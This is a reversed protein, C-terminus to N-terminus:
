KEAAQQLALLLARARSSSPRCGQQDITVASKLDALAKAIESRTLYIEGRGVLADGNASNLRLAADYQEFADDLEGLRHHAAGLHCHFVSDHPDAAVLGSYIQKAERLKGSNLLDFGLRAIQYLAEQDLGFVQALTVEGRILSAPLDSPFDISASVPTRSETIM